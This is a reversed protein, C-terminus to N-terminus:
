RHAGCSPGDAMISNPVALRRNRFVELFQRSGHPGFFPSDGRTPRFRIQIIGANEDRFDWQVAFTRRDPSVRITGQELLRFLGWEGEREVDAEIGFGRAELHAGPQSDGPWHLSTWVEPGNRYRIKQGDITLSVEKVAPAGEILVDFDVGLAHEADFMTTSVENAANLYRAVNPKFRGLTRSGATALEFKSGRMVVANSLVADYFKWIEGNEPHFYGTLDALPLDAGNRAFPYRDDLTDRSVAVIESCWKSSVDNAVGKQTLTWVLNVPPWLLTELTSSWRSAEAQSLMSRVDSQATRVHTALADAGNPDDLRSQLATRLASLQERYDDIPVKTPPPPPAGQATPVPPAKRAGFAVLGDFAYAVDAETLLLVGSADGEMVRKTASEAAMRTLRPNAVRGLRLRQRARRAGIRTAEQLLRDEGEPEFEAHIDVLQTHYAIHSFLDKHPEGRTLEGLLRVAGIHDDPLEVRLDKIFTSWELIYQRFYETQISELEQARALEAQEEGRGVVWQADLFQELGAEFQPKIQGEFGARTFAPRIRHDNNRIVDTGVMDSLAYARGQVSQVLARTVSKTRDSRNLIRQVQAVLASDREFALAPEDAVIGVYTAAVDAMSTLTAPDGSERLPTMWRESLYKVLWQREEEVLGPESPHTPTTLLLVMRLRQFYDDYDEDSPPDRWISYKTAFQQLAALDREVMPLLLENRVTAAYVDRLHPYVAEGQYMGMRLGWPAGQRQHSGLTELLARLTALREVHIADVTDEAVHQAIYEIGAHGQGILDRNAKFSMLPLWVLAVATLLGVLGFGNVWAKQRRTRRVSRGALEHDPFIVRTFLDGLFYSKADLQTSAAPEAPPGFGFASAVTSMIRDHPRGQQTGSCWYLGRVIPTEHFADEVSLENLLRLLSERLGGFHQPFGYIRERAEIRREEVLRRLTRRELGAVLEDFGQACQGVLNNQSRAPLTFGWIQQREDEPLDAFMETFGPLLDCKTILLYVPVVVGLREQLEDVRGRIERALELADHPTGAALESASVTALIGNIPRRNRYKKLLDLFALWEDRDTHQTTYRGATDLLVAERTMWWECNRTGGVGKVSVDGRSSRFPFQLGSRRLATSKGAGPRGVIIYWPLSYLAVSTGRSGLRSSKLSQIAQEFQGQLAVIDAQRDPHSALLEQEAQAKLAREIEASARRARIRSVLLYTGLALVVVTTVVIAIWWPWGLWWCAAWISAIAVTAFLYKLM